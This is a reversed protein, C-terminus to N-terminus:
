HSNGNTARRAPVSQRMIAFPTRKVKSTVLEASSAWHSNGSKDRRAPVHSEECASVAASYCIRTAMQPENCASVAARYCIRRQLVAGVCRWNRRHAFAGGRVAPLPRFWWTTGFVKGYRVVLQSPSGLESGRVAPRLRLRSAALCCWRVTLQSPSDFSGRRVAPLPRLRWTTGFSAPQVKCGSTTMEDVLVRSGSKTTM